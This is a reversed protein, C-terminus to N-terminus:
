PSEFVNVVEDGKFPIEPYTPVRIVEADWAVEVGPFVRGDALEVTVRHVGAHFEPMMSIKDQIADPLIVPGVM